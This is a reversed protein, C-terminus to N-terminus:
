PQVEDKDKNSESSSEEQQGSSERVLMGEAVAALPSTVVRDGVKLSPSPQLLAKSHIVKAVTVDLIKIKGNDNLWMKGGPRVAEVPVSLLPKKFQLPIRVSVFMGSLLTPPTVSVPGAAVRRSTTKQPNEVLIRAPFTRTERNMGSGEFRTLVGEWSTEIGAFEYVITCPVPLIEIPDIRVVPTSDPLKEALKKLQESQQKWIWALESAQLQCRVEMQSSDSIHVLTQGIAAFNGEEIQDDAVRGAIPATILCRALDLEAQKLVAAEVKQRAETVAKTQKRSSLDNKLKQLNNRAVLEKGIAEDRATESTAQREFLKQTRDLNNQQLKQDEKSITILTALNDLDINLSSIEADIQELQAQQRNVKLQYERDDIKFLVDGKKVFHGSRAKLSKEEIRGAVEAGVTIVRFTTAEGDFEITIPKNFESLEVTEVLVGAASAAADDTEIDPKQGFLLFTVGGMTLILIAVFITIFKSMPKAKLFSHRPAKANM